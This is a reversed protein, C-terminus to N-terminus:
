RHELRKRMKFHEQPNERLEKKKEETYKLSKGEFQEALFNPSIWTPNRLYNVLKKATKQVHPVLQIASSGNGIVGVKKDTWDYSQDRNAIM